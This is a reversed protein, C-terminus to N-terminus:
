DGSETTAYQWIEDVSKFGKTKGDKYNQLSEKVRTKEENSTLDDDSYTLRQRSRPPRNAFSTYMHVTRSTGIKVMKKGKGKKKAIRAKKGKSKKKSKM